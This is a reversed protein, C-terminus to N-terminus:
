CRNGGYDLLMYDWLGRALLNICGLFVECNFSTKNRKTKMATTAITVPASAEHLV